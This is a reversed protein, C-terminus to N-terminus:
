AKKRNNVIRIAMAAACGIIMIFLEAYLIYGYIKWNIRSVEITVSNAETYLINKAARQLYYIDADTEISPYKMTGFSLWKDTGARLCADISRIDGGEDMDTIVCGRFGWENRLVNNILGVHAGAYTDGVYCMSNMIGSAGGDKVASEFPKLYIERIAQENSYVHVKKRNTEMDNLAFHKLYVIMGKSTAGKTEAAAILGSLTGDESYYEFNRGSYASRHINMAPAYWGSIGLTHGQDAMMEGYTGALETNFTAALLPLCPYAVSNLESNFMSSIGLPGDSESTTYKGISDITPTGFMSDLVLDRCEELSLESILEDWKEDDYSLGEMDALALTGDSEYDVGKEYHRIEDIEDLSEDYVNDNDLYATSEIATSVSAMASEYNAFANNRSLYEGRAVDDFQNSAVTDDSSRKNEGSYFYSEELVATVEEIATHADERISFIYEGADLMYSGQTGDANEYSSDYSAFDEAKVSITVIESENPELVDTKGIGCLSVAAKEVGNAIDYDTYPATVYLQVTEKGAANGTNTVRVQVEVSGEADFACGDAIGGIIEQTFETYSLGHGFPYRVISDYDNYDFVENTKTNTIVAGETYATEYWKYGAYIGEVYDVYYRDDVNSSEQGSFNESSPNADHDYVWTDTLRGSPNVEGTLIKGLAEFGYPGPVGAWICADIDYDNMFDLQIQNASNFVVIVTDFTDCAKDLLDRENQCLSLYDGDTYSTLDNGEGGSRGFVIIATDSYEKMQEFSAEGQYADTSVEDLSLSVSMFGVSKDKTEEIEYLGTDVCVPNVDIGASELSSLISISDAASVSGSGSGSYIPNYAAYGLLNVKTGSSFPLASNNNELLVMGEEGIEYATEMWQDEDSDVRVTGISPMTFLSDLISCYTYLLSNGVIAIVLCVAAIGGMTICFGINRGKSKKKKASRLFFFLQIAFLIGLVIVLVTLALKLLEALNM